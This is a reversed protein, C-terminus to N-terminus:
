GTLVEIAREHLAADGSALVHGSGELGLPDGRWDTIVGGAGEILPVLACYDYPQMSSECVLDARGSAVSCYAQCDGGYVTHRASRRLTEFRDFDRGMHMQPSTTLLWAESLGVCRRTTVPTGNRTSAHGQAGIWTEALAPLEMVGLVPQGQYLLAILSGFLPKGIIFSKTGDIPDLVWVFDADAKEVGYEEGFIGHDPFAANIRKRMMAEAARDAETVPSADGKTEFGLGQAYRPLILARAAMALDQALALPADLDPSTM